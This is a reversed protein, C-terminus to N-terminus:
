GHFWHIALASMVGLVALPALATGKLFAPIDFGFARSSYSIAYPSYFVMNILLMATPLGLAGQWRYLVLATAILLIGTVGNAIHWVIHNTLSYLQIHMAGVREM